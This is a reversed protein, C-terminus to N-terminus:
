KVPLTEHLKQLTEIAESIEGVGAIRITLKDKGEKLKFREPHQQIFRIIGEFTSSRYYPSLQNSIFHAMLQGNGLILKEFGLEVAIWRLRVVSLLDEVQRPLPGFRDRIENRFRELEEANHLSDIERYLKIRETTNTIYSDPLLIEMDTEVHCDAYSPKWERQTEHEAQTQITVFESERLEELAEDLIRQYAEFGIETIFGSQEAGLINGAGRIDLDQMAISFGSGLESFEEIARLRRRADATLTELPPALLYCFAKKNSRGVRGRLQHLDSLGFMQANNIIMTNANSIDLGSEIISTSILVDYDGSIFGLMIKELKSPEMQGHAVATKAKPCIKNVMLEVEAINQIRNHVFFVQGGRDMEYDIAEKIIATSFTHVETLIPHRNAPPTNIISLDRAGMLSFQLTRPIPTATLTLTDVNLKLQKLKEKAAVGFKQEEDVVLLGFDKFKLTSNLLAHTGILIDIKGESARQRIERQQAPTKMRNLFEVTCPFGKLRSTFTQYHQLALITTPVLVAVQKSDAVAKFAARIAVETKGFGVDGCILRDMPREAEMDEKVAKTASLQDPTDEFVFSAELEQQMYTDPSFSFGPQSRRQSYLAILERAIDKIKRKTNQKLRQWAGSGLKYIKPSEADKGRYKSIKHLNHISVLLTDNDQYVLRIAEQKKGNIETSVLGGFIGIGHDIHVVYDGPQLDVLEQMTIADRRNFEHKLKYRHYREFIQHDTYLNIRLNHDVFGESITGEVPNYAIDPAIGHMIGDLRELQASNDSLIFTQYGRGADENIKQVLLEFNKGFAPQPSTGFDFTPLQVSLPKIGFYLTSRTLLSNSFIDRSAFNSANLQTATSVIRSLEDMRNLVLEPNKVWLTTSPPLLDTLLIRSPNDEPSQLNPIIVVESLLEKSLQDEVDFSRITEVEDGFFDLRYPTSASYSFVDVISGRVSFQGPEYVFDSRQFGYETLTDCIFDPSVKEGKQIKISNRSLTDLSVVKEFLADPYTVVVVPREDNENLAPLLAVVDTRQVIADPLTQGYQVSRKYSSPFFYVQNEPLLCSLDSFLYAAEEKDNVVVLSPRRRQEVYGSLVFAVASGALGKLFFGGELNQGADLLQKLSPHKLYLKYLEHLHQLLFIKLL